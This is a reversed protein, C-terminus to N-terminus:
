NTQKSCGENQNEELALLNRQLLARARSLQSKSTSEAIGLQEGIEKHSFGDIAYLNFVIRYGAPLEGIMNMLDEAELASEIKQYDPERGAAEIDAELYMNKNRRMWTLAENVMVKRIWGEFSGEGKYQGIREFIKTFAVILVDESETKDKVYRCCVAYMKGSFKQYLLEQAHRDGRKCGEILEHESARYIQLRM